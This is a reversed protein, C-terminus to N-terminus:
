YDQLIESIQALQSRTFIRLLKKNNETCKRYVEFASISDSDYGCDSCFNEFSQDSVSQDLLLCYLVEAPKLQTPFLHQREWERLEQQRTSSQRLATPYATKFKPRRYTITGDAEPESQFKGTIPMSKRNGHNKSFDFSEAERGKIFTAVYCDTELQRSIIKTHTFSQTFTVGWASLLPAVAVDFRDIDPTSQSRM